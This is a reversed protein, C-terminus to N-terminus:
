YFYTSKTNDLKSDFRNFIKLNNIRGVNNLKDQLAKSFVTIESINCGQNNHIPLYSSERYREEGISYMFEKLEELTLSNLEVKGM